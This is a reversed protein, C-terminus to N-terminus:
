IAFLLQFIFSSSLELVHLGVWASPFSTVLSIGQFASLSVRLQSSDVRHEQWTKQASV